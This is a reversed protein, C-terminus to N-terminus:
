SVIRIVGLQSALRDRNVSLDALTYGDLVLYMAQVAHHLAQKLECMGDIRCEGARSDDFCELLPSDAECMRVVEGIRISHAPKGLRLGGGRGRLSEVYGSKSLFHVVKMLHNDSVGYAGAIQARTALGEPHVALYILTRLCYDTFATLRMSLVPLAFSISYQLYRKSLM